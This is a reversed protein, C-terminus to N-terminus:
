HSLQSSAKLWWLNRHDMPGERPGWLTPQPPEQAPLPQSFGSFPTIYTRIKKKPKSVQKCELLIITSTTAIYEGPLNNCTAHQLYDEIDWCYFFTSWLTGWVLQWSSFCLLCSPFNITIEISPHIELNSFSSEGMPWNVWHSFRDEVSM